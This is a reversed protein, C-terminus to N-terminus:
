HKEGHEERAPHCMTGGCPSAECLLIDRQAGFPRILPPQAILEYRVDQWIKETEYAMIFFMDFFYKDYNENYKIVIGRVNMSKDGSKLIKQLLELLILFLSALMNGM